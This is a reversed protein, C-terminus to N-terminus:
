SKFYSRVNHLTLSIAITHLVLATVKSFTLSMECKGDDTVDECLLLSVRYVVTVIISTVCIFAFINRLYKSCKQLSTVLSEISFRDTHMAPGTQINVPPSMLMPVQRRPIIRRITVMVPSMLSLESQSQSSSSNNTQPTTQSAIHKLCCPCSTKSSVWRNFCTWHATGGCCLSMIEPFPENELCIICGDNRKKDMFESFSIKKNNANRKILM